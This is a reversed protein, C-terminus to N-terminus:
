GRVNEQEYLHIWAEPRRVMDASCFFGEVCCYLDRGACFEQFPIPLRMVLEWGRVSRIRRNSQGSEVELYAVGDWETKREATEEQVSTDNVVTVFQQVNGNKAQEEPPSM